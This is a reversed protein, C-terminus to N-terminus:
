LNFFWDQIYFNCNRKKYNTLIKDVVRCFIIKIESKLQEVCSYQKEAGLSRYRSMCSNPIGFRKKLKTYDKPVALKADHMCEHNSEFGIGSELVKQVDDYM